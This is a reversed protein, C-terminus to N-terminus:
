RDEPDPVPTLTLDPFTGDTAPIWPTQAPQYGEATAFAAYVRDVDLRLPTRFRGNANTKLFPGDNFEVLEDGLVQGRDSIQIRLHVWAGAIPRGDPDFVHGDLGTGFSDELRLRSPEPDGVRTTVPEPTRLERYKATLEVPVGEIAGEVTFRGHPDSQVTVDRITSSHPGEDVLWKATIEAGPLPRGQDDLVLGRVAGARSLEIPPMEFETADEPIMVRPLSFLLNAHGDPVDRVSFLLVGPPSYGEFRGDPGTAMVVDDNFRGDIQVGPIPKGTGRERVLGRVRVAQKLPLEIETTQGAEVTTGLGMDVYFKRDISRDSRVVLDGAAIIPVEFRGDRDTKLEVHGPYPSRHGPSNTGVMLSLGGVLEPDGVVRGVVRGVPLLTIVKTKVGVDKHGFGFQQRGFGEAVICVTCIEEPLLATLVARGHADTVTEAGIREVLGEPVVSYKRILVRPEIRAGAIPQGDPDHIEFVAQSPPGVVLRAPLGPPLTGRFVPLSGVFMGPQYAWLVGSPLNWRDKEAPPIELHFRGEADATTEAVVRGWAPGGERESYFIHVGETPKGDPGLVSGSVPVKAMPEPAAPEPRPANPEPPAPKAAPEQRALATAVALAGVALCSVVLVSALNALKTRLMTKLVEKALDLVGAPVTGVAGDTVFRLSAAVASANLAAPVAARTSGPAALIALVAGSPALGRRTLRDRLLARARALRGAVTGPPWGLRQAAEDRTLRELDCLVVPARYRAPLREIEEHLAPLLDGPERDRAPIRADIEPVNREVARRRAARRGAEVAVRRGVRHLWGGLSDGVWLMGAKRALILFTAQFADEADHEDRLIGRCVALVMPGHRNVLAAFAAEDRGAVFRELLQADGLGTVTGGGFLRQWQNLVSADRPARSM